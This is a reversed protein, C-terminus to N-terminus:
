LGIYGRIGKRFFKEKIKDLAKYYNTERIDIKKEEQKPPERNKKTFISSFIKEFEDESM